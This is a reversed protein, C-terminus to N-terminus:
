AGREPGLRHWNWASAVVSDISSREPRWGLRRQAARADAVLEAPDGPRRSALEYRVPQGSAEEVARVIELVSAGRGAGLNLRLPAGDSRVAELALLHAQALDSVHVYDRVATGDPTPYDSGFVDLWPRRGLALALPIVHTEPDHVEGVEGEPDAGAANFYRLAAYRLGYSHQYWHLVREVALKSEGYPSVPALPHGEGIPLRRPHGYVACSSSFVIDKVGIDLMAGLLTLTNALNNAFYKRPVQMSEGVSAHAAFHVVADIAHDELAGRVTDADAIDAEVLPGWRVAWRHGARLDDLVIPQHGAHALAKATHSGIYGAGGVVLVKLASM